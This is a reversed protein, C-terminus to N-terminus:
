FCSGSYWYDYFSAGDSGISGPGLCKNTGQTGEIYDTLPQSDLTVWTSNSSLETWADTFHVSGFNYPHAEAPAEGIWEATNLDWGWGSPPTLGCSHIVGTTEDELYFYATNSSTQFSMNQYIKDNTSFTWTTWNNCFHKAVQTNAFQHFPRYVSGGGLSTNGCEAGQQVLDNGSYTGGLGIWFGVGNTSGCGTSSPIWFVTKIAVYTHAHIGPTGAAWGGWGDYVTGSLPAGDTPGVVMPGPLNDSRYAAMADIWDQLDSANTPREPFGLEALMAPSATIPDFGPPPTVITEVQGNPLKYTSQTSGDPLGMVVPAITVTDSSITNDAMAGRVSSPAAILALAMAATVSVIKRM